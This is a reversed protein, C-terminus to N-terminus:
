YTIVIKIKRWFHLDDSSIQQSNQATVSDRGSIIDFGDERWTRVGLKERKKTIDENILETKIQRHETM